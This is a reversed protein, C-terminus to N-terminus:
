AAVSHHPEPTAIRLTISEEPAAAFLAEQEVRARKLAVLANLFPGAVAADVLQRIFRHHTPSTYM